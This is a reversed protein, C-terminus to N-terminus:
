RRSLEVEGELCSDIRILDNGCDVAIETGYPCDICEMLGPVDLDHAVLEGPCTKCEM